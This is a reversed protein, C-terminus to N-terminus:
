FGDPRCQENKLDRASPAGDVGDPLYGGMKLFNAMGRAQAFYPALGRWQVDDFIPKLTEEPLRSAQLLVVWFDHQSSERPPRTEDVLVKELKRRQEATLGLSNDLTAIVLAVKARHRFMKQERTVEAYKAAQEANLVKPITKAFISSEGYLGSNADVRLPQIEQQFAAFKNMDTKVDQFQRRKEDIRDFYRKIDGRGALHLKTKQGDSLSCARDVEGILLDLM